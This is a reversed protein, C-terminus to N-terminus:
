CEKYVAPFSFNTVSAGPHPRLFQPRGVFTAAPDSGVGTFVRTAGRWEEFSRGSSSAESDATEALAVVPWGADSAAAAARNKGASLM